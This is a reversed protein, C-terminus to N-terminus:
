CLYTHRGGIPFYGARPSELPTAPQRGTSGPWGFDYPVIVHLSQFDSATARAARDIPSVKSSARVSLPISSRSLDSSCVDSSWDSIRMEYATKQKFFFVVSLNYDLLLMSGFLYLM